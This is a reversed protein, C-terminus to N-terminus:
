SPFFFFLVLISSPAKIPDFVARIAGIFIPFFEITPAPEVIVLFTFFLDSENVVKDKIEMKYEYMSGLISESNSVSKKYQIVQNYPLSNVFRQRFRLSNERNLLTLSITDFYNDIFVENNSYEISYTKNNVEISKMNSLQDLLSSFNSFSNSSYRIDLDVRDSAVAYSYNTLFVLSLIITKIYTNM